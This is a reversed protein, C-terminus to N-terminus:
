GSKEGGADLVLNEATLEDVDYQAEDRDDADGDRISYLLALAPSRNFLVLFALSQRPRALSRVSIVIASSSTSREQSPTCAVPSRLGVCCRVELSQAGGPM